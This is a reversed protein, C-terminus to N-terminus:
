SQVSYYYEATKNRTQKLIVVTNSMESLCGYHM